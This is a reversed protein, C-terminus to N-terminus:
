VSMKGMIYFMYQAIALLFWGMGKRIKNMWQGAKPLSM